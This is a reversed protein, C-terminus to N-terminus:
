LSIFLLLAASIVKLPKTWGQFPPGRQFHLEPPLDCGWKCDGQSLWSFFIGLYLQVARQLCTARLSAIMRGPRPASTQDKQGQLEEVGELM